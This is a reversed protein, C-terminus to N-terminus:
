NAPNLTCHERLLLDNRAETGNAQQRKHYLMSDLSLSLRDDDDRFSRVITEEIGDSRVFDLVHERFSEAEVSSDSRETVGLSSSLWSRVISDERSQLSRFRDFSNEVCSGVRRRGDDDNLLVLDHSLRQHLSYLLNTENKMKRNTALKRTRLSLINSGSDSGLVKRESQAQPIGFELIAQM